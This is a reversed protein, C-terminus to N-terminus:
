SSLIRAAMKSKKDNQKSLAASSMYEIENEMKVHEFLHNWGYMNVTGAIDKFKDVTVESRIITDACLVKVALWNKRTISLTLPTNDQFDRVDTLSGSKLLIKLMVLLTQTMPPDVIYLYGQSYVVPSLRACLAHLPTQGKDNRMNVSAGLKIMGIICEHEEGITKTGRRNERKIDATCADFKLLRRFVDALYRDEADGSVDDTESLDIIEDSVLLHLPTNRSSDQANIIRNDQRHLFEVLKWNYNWAAYHIAQRGFRDAINVTAHRNVMFKCMSTHNNVSALILPSMGNRNELGNRQAHKNLLYGAVTEHNFACALSLPTLGVSDSANVDAHAHDVLYKVVSLYGQQSAMMLPTTHMFFGVYNESSYVEGKKQKPEKLLKPGDITPIDVNIPAEPKRLDKVIRKVSVLDGYFAAYHLDSVDDYM